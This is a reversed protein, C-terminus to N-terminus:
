PKTIVEDLSMISRAVLTWAALEASGSKGAISEADLVKQKLREIQSEKFNLILGLEDENPPRVLFRRFIAAAIQTDSAEGGELVRRNSENSLKGISEVVSKSTERALELFMEDNLLTLAQLPSNSRNRKAICNEGTPANFTQYAAFPATRKSFTYLSRRFRDEGKSVNWKTGGYAMATVTSPQPPFVSPGFMKRSLQGSASLMVDRVMEGDIRFRPGRTYFENGPDNAYESRPRHSSQKYTASTVIQRHLKKRSWGNSQFEVSLWDLLLPHTPPDSQTGFDGPSRVLGKGFFQQWVRNVETRASLPNEVSVLWKAFDLRDFRRADKPDTENRFIVPLMPSVEERPNLYEGRHYRVTKRPNAIPRERMVMTRIPKPLQKKLEVIKSQKSELLPTVSLFCKVLVERERKNLPDTKAVLSQIDTPLKSIGFPKDAFGDTTFSIRFRGLSAVFHREFIMQITLLNEVSPKELKLVLQNSEGEKGSTSWGTSGDGDLVNKADASGSGISIKGFSSKIESVPIREGGANLVLESLFFDGKRGEYYANGPGGAPLRDDPLVELRIATIPKKFISLDYSLDYTDRKTFDGSAFLSGDPQLQLSPSNTKYKTPTAVEWKVATKRGSELWTEFEKSLAEKRQKEDTADADHFQRVLQNEFQKIKEEISKQQSSQADTLIPFDPEDANNLMAMMSYYDTHLIPDYKHTHCQACGISMGMWITGTTAVRDVMAYFRYELPDIGGEENLMTNRHFGTAIKQDETANPLMDGALQEISFQDFPMDKNIAKIVWDRYPWITRPRDKEYGNTDAYRALDLWVRAWREGYADSQLLQDVVKEYADASQDKVFADAQDSTPPLGILDLYVRRILSYKDASHNPTKKSELMKRLVFADIPSQTWENKDIVSKLDIKSILRKAEPVEPRIPKVFAWHKEFSAGELIWDKLLQKQDDSLGEGSGPPPMQEDPDTSFIRNLVASDALDDLDFAGHEIAADRSDLRLDAERSEEDPGHCSFCSAALIPRVKRNFSIKEGSNQESQSFAEAYGFSLVVIGCCTALFIRVLRQNNITEEVSNSQKMM